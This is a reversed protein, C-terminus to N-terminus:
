AYIFYHAPVLNSLIVSFNFSFGRAHLRRAHPKLKAHYLIVKPRKYRYSVSGNLFEKLIRPALRFRKIFFHGFHPLVYSFAGVKHGTSPVTKTLVPSAKTPCVNADFYRMSSRMLSPPM